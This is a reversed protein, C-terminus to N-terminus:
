WVEVEDDDWTIQDGHSGSALSGSERMEELQKQAKETAEDINEAEVEIHGTETYTFGISFKKM